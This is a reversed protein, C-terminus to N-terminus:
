NSLMDYVKQTEYRLVAFVDKIDYLKEDDSLQEYEYSYYETGNKDVYRIGDWMPELYGKVLPQNDLEARPVTIGKNREPTWNHSYNGNYIQMVENYDMRRGNYEGGVFEYIYNM